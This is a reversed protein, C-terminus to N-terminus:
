TLTAQEEEPIVLLTNDELVDIVLVKDRNDIRGPKSTVAQVTQLRGQIMVEIQGKGEREGPIPLYVSGVQGVANRYDLTGSHRMSWLVKMLYFVTFMLVLGVLLAVLVVLWLASGAKTLIAGMWGFGVLFATATRVSLFEIDGFGSEDGGGFGDAEHDGDLGLLMMLTQVGLLATSFMGITYFIKAVLALGDWWSNLDEMM